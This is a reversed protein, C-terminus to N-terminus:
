QSFEGFCPTACRWFLLSDQMLNWHGNLGNDGFPPNFMTQHRNTKKIELPNPFSIYWDILLATISSLRLKASEKILNGVTLKRPIDKGLCWFNWRQKRSTLGKHNSIREVFFEGVSRAAVELLRLAESSDYRFEILNSVHTDIVKHTLLDQISYKDGVAGVM